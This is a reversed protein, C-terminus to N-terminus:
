SAFYPFQLGQFAACLRIPWILSHRGGPYFCPIHKKKKLYIVALYSGESKRHHRINILFRHIKFRNKTASTM